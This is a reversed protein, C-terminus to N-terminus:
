TRRGAASPWAASCVRRPRRARGRGARKKRRTACPGRRRASGEPRHGDRRGALQAGRRHDRRLAPHCHARAREGREEALKLLQRSVFPFKQLTTIIIPCEANELAEALQRSSEDIKQVVGRKHEFQYITDQLQQDLVVRDTVVIVSDFVRQNNADHLSALSAGALRHHQEQRQRGLARRPLQAWARPARQRWWSGCRRLQHYRPFIMSEKKVKRGQDDRKEDVQLHLFRALLDLLSDRQLGRGVPVGHSLHARGSRAPQRRRRRLGQQLAPLAHGDGALRTTMLVSETDSRSTCWRAASSSSSRSARTATRATSGAAHEVTQGTLPNKLELTAVPIGNLSLTLDLSKESKAALLSAAPDPRPPERRLASGARPQARARGQLLRRPANARLVQLRPAADGARREPGDVQVPRRPDARRDQRRAAGGAEGVGQATDRPHLRLV